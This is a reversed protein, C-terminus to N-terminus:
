DTFFSTVHLNSPELSMTKSILFGEVKSNKCARCGVWWEWIGSSRQYCVACPSDQSIGLNQNQSHLKLSRRISKPHLSLSPHGPVPNTSLIPLASLNPSRTSVSLAQLFLLPFSCSDSHGHPMKPIELTTLGTVQPIESIKHTKSASRHWLFEVTELGESPDWTTEPIETPLYRCTRQVLRWLYHLLFIRHLRSSAWQFGLYGSFALIKCNRHQLPSFPPM